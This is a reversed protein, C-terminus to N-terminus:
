PCLGVPSSTTCHNRKVVNDGGTAQVGIDLVNGVLVNGVILNNRAPPSDPYDVVLIGASGPADKGEIRNQQVLSGTGAVVIGDIGYANQAPCALNTGLIRNFRLRAAIGPDIFAGICTNTVNNERVDAFQTQICLGVDYGSVTNGATVVPAVDDMCIGIFQLAGTSHVTNGTIRTGVSGATLAGYRAGDVLDNGTLRANRAGVFAVNPGSFGRVSFGSISVDDVPTGVHEVHRHEVVFDALRVDAGAVCIGAETNSGALGSCLNVAPTPPPVLVAGIGSITLGDTTITLQEAYTGALM